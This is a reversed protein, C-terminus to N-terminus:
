LASRRLSWNRGYPVVGPWEKSHARSSSVRSAAWAGGGGPQEFRSGREEIGGDGVRPLPVTVRSQDVRDVRVALRHHRRAHVPHGALGHEGGVRQVPAGPLFAEGRGRRPPPILDVAVEEVALAAAPPLFQGRVHRRGRGGPRALRIEVVGVLGEQERRERQARGRGGRQGPPGSTRATRIASQRCAIRALSPVRRYQWRHCLYPLILTHWRHCRGCGVPQEIDRVRGPHAQAGGRPDQVVIRPDRRDGPLADPFDHEVQPELGVRHGPRQARSGVGRDPEDHLGDGIREEGFDDVRHLQLHRTVAPGHEDRAGPTVGAPFAVDDPAQQLPPDGPQQEARGAVVM